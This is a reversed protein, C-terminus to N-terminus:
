QAPAGLAKVREFAAGDHAPVIVLAPERVHLHHLRWLSSSLTARDHDTLDSMPKLKHSPGLIADLSWATDGVFLLRAGHTQVFVGVSGPTHGPLPVLVVSGDGFYDHSAPFNEYSPGDWTFTELAADKLHEPMVAPQADKPFDRVFDAEGPGMVVRPHGLETLGSTHDWHAHTLVVFDLKPAGAAALAEHLGRELTFAFAQRETFGFKAVDDLGKASVGSDILFTAKPHKVVYAAHVIDVRSLCSQEGAAACRPARNIGMRLPTVTAEATAPAPAAFVAFTSQNAAVPVTLCGTALGLWSVSLARFITQSNVRRV